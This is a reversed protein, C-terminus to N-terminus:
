QQEVMGFGTFLVWLLYVITSAWLLRRARPPWQMGEAARWLLILAVGGLVGSLAQLLSVDNRM